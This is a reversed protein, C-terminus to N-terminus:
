KNETKYEKECLKCMSKKINFDIITKEINCKNCIKTEINITEM